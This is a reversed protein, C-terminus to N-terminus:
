IFITFKVVHLNYRLIYFYRNTLHIFISCSNSHNDIPSLIAQQTKNDQRLKKTNTKFHIFVLKFSQHPKPSPLTSYYQGFYACATLCLSPIM